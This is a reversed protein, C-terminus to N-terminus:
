HMRDLYKKREALVDQAVAQGMREALNRRGGEAMLKEALGLGYQIDFVRGENDTARLVYEGDRVVGLASEAHGTEVKMGWAALARKCAGVVEAMLYREERQKREEEARDEHKESFYSSGEPTHIEDLEREFIQGLLRKSSISSADALASEAVKQIEDIEAAPPENTHLTKWGDDLDRTM